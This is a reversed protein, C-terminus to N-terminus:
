IPPAVQLAYPGIEEGALSITIVHAQDDLGAIPVRVRGQGDTLIRALETGALDSLTVVASKGIPEFVVDDGVAPDGTEVLFNAVSEHIQKPGPDIWWQPILHPVELPGPLADRNAGVDAELTYRTPEHSAVVELYSLTGAPLDVSVQWQGPWSGIQTRDADYLAVDVPADVSELTVSAKFLALM